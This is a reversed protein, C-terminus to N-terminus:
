KGFAAFSTLFPRPDGQENPFSDSFPKKIADQDPKMQSVDQDGPAKSSPMSGAHTPCSSSYSPCSCPVLSSKLVYKDGPEEKKSATGPQSMPDGITKQIPKDPVTMREYSPMILFAFVVLALVTGWWLVNDRIM